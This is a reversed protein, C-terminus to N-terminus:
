CEVNMARCETNLPLRDGTELRDGPPGGVADRVCRELEEAGAGVSGETRRLAASLEVTFARVDAFTRRRSFDIIRRMGAVSDLALRRSLGRAQDLWEPRYVEPHFHRCLEVDLRTSQLRNALADPAFNRAFFCQTALAFVRQMRPSALRYDWGLYDGTCRGESQMRALLPTGAYLEVRGFNWPTDAQAEMFALNTELSEITTDPDFVLMNFCVYIGLEQLIRMAEHNRGRSVRRRLTKLGQDSDSEIGLFVRVCGLRDRVARFVDLTVDSPRAKIITAFKGVGRADLADALGEIRDLCRRHGPIFFNDDHFTFLDVGRRDHLWAMEDAVDEVSRTRFRVGSESLGHWAAICCFSCNAYCGRSGVLPAMNHGLFTSCPGRRDPWPLDALDPTPPLPTRVVGGQQDRRALGPIDQWSHGNTLARALAVVTIETEQRCISDIEPFDTLIEDCAFTGFHGGATIHGRYGRRRLAVALALVDKARWQFALSLGVMVPPASASLIKDLVQSLQHGANFPVISSDFGASALSSAVYRLSLNEEEEPGVLAIWAM